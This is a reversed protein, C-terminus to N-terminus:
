SRRTKQFQIMGKCLKWMFAFYYIITMINIMSYVFLWGVVRSDRLSTYNVASHIIAILPIVIFILHIGLLHIFIGIKDWCAVSYSYFPVFSIYVMVVTQIMTLVEHLSNIAFIEDKAIRDDYILKMSWSIIFPAIFTIWYLLVTRSAFM